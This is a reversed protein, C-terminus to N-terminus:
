AGRCAPRIASAWSTSARRPSSRGASRSRPTSSPSRCSTPRSISSCSAGNAPAPSGRRRSSLRARALDAGPQPDRARHQAVAAAGGGLVINRHEAGLFGTLVIVFPLFPLGLAMDAIRMLLADVWGGFYGALLGVVTGVTAVIVAASLGVGARARHRAGAPCLHRPRSQHHRAPVGAGPPMNAALKGAKTFLIEIPDIRRSSTPSCRSWRRVAVYIVIGTFAFPDRLPM